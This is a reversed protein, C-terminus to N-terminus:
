WIGSRADPLVVQLIQGRRSIGLAAAGEILSHPVSALAVASTLAITPVIM